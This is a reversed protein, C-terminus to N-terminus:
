LRASLAPAIASWKAEDPVFWRGTAAKVAAGFGAAAPCVTVRFAEPDESGSPETWAYSHSRSPLPLKSRSLPDFGTVVVVKAWCPSACTVSRTMSSRCPVSVSVRVTVTVPLPGVETKM